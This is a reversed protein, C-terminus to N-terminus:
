CVTRVPLVPIPMVPGMDQHPQLAANAQRQRLTKGVTMAHADKWIEDSSHFSDKVTRDGALRWHAPAGDLEGVEYYKSDRPKHRVRYPGNWYDALKNDRLCGATSEKFVFDLDKVKLDNKYSDHNKNNSLLTSATFKIPATIADNINTTDTATDSSAADFTQVQFAPAMDLLATVPPGVNDNTDIVTHDSDVTDMVSDNNCTIDDYNDNINMKGGYDKNDTDDPPKDLSIAVTDNDNNRTISNECNDNIDTEDSYDDTDDPPRDQSIAVTDNDNNRTICNECNDNIDTKESYNDIDDPPRDQPLLVTASTGGTGKTEGTGGLVNLCDLGDPEPVPAPERESFSFLSNIAKLNQESDPSNRTPINPQFTAYDQCQVRKEEVTVEIIQGNDNGHDFDMTTRSQLSPLSDMTLTSINAAFAISPKVSALTMTRRDAEILRKQGGKGVM